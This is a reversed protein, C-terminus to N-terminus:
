LKKKEQYSDVKLIGRILDQLNFFQDLLFKKSTLVEKEKIQKKRQSKIQSVKLEKYKLAVKFKKKYLFQIKPHRITKITKFKTAPPKKIKTLFILIKTLVQKNM